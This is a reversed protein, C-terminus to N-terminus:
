SGSLGLWVPLVGVDELVADAEGALDEAPLPGTLVAVAWMGLAKAPRLDHPSDGIMVVAEPEIGTAACFALHMGTGPKSGFGSDYGALFDFRDIIGARRLQARAAAEADNTAVGLTLGHANLRDLLPCLPVPEIPTAEAARGLLYARLAGREAGPLSPLIADVIADLTGAVAPSTKRFRRRGLDYDLAAAIDRM